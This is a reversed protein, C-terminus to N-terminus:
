NIGHSHVVQQDLFSRGDNKKFSLYVRTMYIILIINIILTVLLGTPVNDQIVGIFQIFYSKSFDFERLMFDIFTMADNDILRMIFFRGAMVFNALLLFLAPGFTRNYRSLNVKQMIRGHLDSPYEVDEIKKFKEGLIDM